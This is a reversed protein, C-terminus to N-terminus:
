TEGGAQAARLYQFRRNAVDQLTQSLGAEWLVPLLTADQIKNIASIVEPEPVSRMYEQLNHIEYKHLMGNQKQAAKLYLEIASIDLVDKARVQWSLKPM